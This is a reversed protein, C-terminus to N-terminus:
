KIKKLVLDVETYLEELTGNNSFKYDALQICASINQKNPDNSSMEREENQVFTEYSVKDTESARDVIRKYRLKQDADVAFLSFNGKAHLANVEGLTRISEIICDNGSEKAERFLEEAIFSPSNKARLENATAVLTDRNVEGGKQM